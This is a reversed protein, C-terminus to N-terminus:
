VVRSKSPVALIAGIAFLLISTPEPVAVALTVNSTAYISSVASITSVLELDDSDRWVTYDAANIVGDNNGDARLDVTSGYTSVFVDYDLQDIILNNDYDATLDRFDVSTIESLGGASIAATLDTGAALTWINGLSVIEGTSLSGSSTTLSAETISVATSSLIFWESASDVSMDGLLDYNGSVSTLDGPSLAGSLSDIQYGDIVEEGGGANKLFLEGSLEDVVVVISTAFSTSTISFLLLGILGTSFLAASLRRGFRNFSPKTRCSKIPDSGVTQNALLDKSLLHVPLLTKHLRDPLKPM